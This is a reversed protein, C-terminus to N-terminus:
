QSVVEMAVVVGDKISVEYTKGAKFTVVKGAYKTIAPFTVSISTGTTLMMWCEFNGAPYTITLSTM